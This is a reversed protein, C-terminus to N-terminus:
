IKKMNPISVKRLLKKTKQCGQNQNVAFQDDIMQASKTRRNDKGKLILLKCM